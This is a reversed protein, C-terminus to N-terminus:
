PQSPFLDVSGDPRLHATFDSVDADIRIDCRGRAVATVLEVPVHFYLAQSTGGRVLLLPSEDTGWDGNELPVVHGLQGHRGSVTWGAVAALPVAHGLESL